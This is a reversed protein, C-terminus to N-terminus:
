TPYVDISTSDGSVTIFGPVTLADGTSLLLSNTLTESCPTSPYCTIIEQSATKSAANVTATPITVTTASTVGVNVTVDSRSPNDWTLLECNCNAATVQISLATYHAAKSPYETFTIQLYLTMTSGTVLSTDRPDAQIVHTDITPSDKTVTM